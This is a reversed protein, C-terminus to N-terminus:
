FHNWGQARLEIVSGNKDIYYRGDEANTMHGIVSMHPNGKIKEYDEQRITFLLEYDEGGNLACTVPDLNFDIATMSTKSDIPIKEDYVYCGVNSSKCLHLIESALGDSIDIMSSPVVDLEKLFRVVDVRAEPKLQREIIYDHGDLDPQINPNAVYVEKERELVQLGMYAAGLDGTCVLLDHQKAGSRYSIEDTKARGIVTVSIMMGTTSSSTDGGVLDIGYTVCAAQIGSYLEELAELPFRNSVAISVTIQEATGNMAAIDSVNSAVAKYGLHKLPMYMLNFHVGEVMMDTSVLLSNTDDLRIVAADDGIGYQTSAQKNEFQATLQEILGFEGLSDLETRKESM